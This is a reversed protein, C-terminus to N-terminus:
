LTVLSDYVLLSLGLFMGQSPLFQICFTGLLLSLLPLQNLSPGNSPLDCWRVTSGLQQEWAYERIQDVLAPDFVVQNSLM